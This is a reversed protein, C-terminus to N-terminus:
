KESEQCNRCLLKGFKSKSFVSEAVTITKSCKSCMGVGVNDQKPTEIARYPTKPALLEGKIPTNDKHDDDKTDDILFLGNLAYKRAYSSASGTVQSSSMGRQEQEERALATIQVISNEKDILHATAQVYYRDGILLIADSLTLNVEYKALIPKVAELIDEQNRYSYKGFANFQSKPAKLENQILTLKENINM